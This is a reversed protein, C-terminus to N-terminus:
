FFCIGTQLELFLLVAFGLMAARGNTIEARPTFKGFAEMRAGKFMPVLSAYIWMIYWLWTLLSANAVQTLITEGTQFEHVAVSVFALMALRGNILEPAVGNFKMINFFSTEDSRLKAKKEAEIKADVTSITQPPEALAVCIKQRKVVPIACNRRTDCFKTFPLSGSKLM